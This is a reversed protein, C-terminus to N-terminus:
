RKRRLMLGLLGLGLLAMTAPEPVPATITLTTTGSWSQGDPLDAGGNYSERATGGFALGGCLGDKSLITAGIASQGRKCYNLSIDDNILEFLLGSRMNLAATEDNDKVEFVVQHGDNHDGAKTGYWDTMSYLQHGDTSDNAHVNPFSQGGEIPNLIPWTDYGGDALCLATNCSLGDLNSSGGSSNEILIVTELVSKYAYMGGGLAQVDTPAYITTTYTLDAGDFTGTYKFAYSAASRSVEAFASYSGLPAGCFMGLSATNASEPSYQFPTGGASVDQFSAIEGKTWNAHQDGDRGMNLTMTWITDSGEAAVIDVWHYPGAYGTTERDTITLTAAGASGVCLALVLLSALANRM